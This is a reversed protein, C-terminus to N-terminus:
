GKGREKDYKEKAALLQLAINGLISNPEVFAGYRDAELSMENRSVLADDPVSAIYKRNLRPVCDM